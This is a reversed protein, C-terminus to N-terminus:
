LSSNIGEAWELAELYAQGMSEVDFGAEALVEWEGQEYQFLAALLGGLDGERGILAAKVEESLPLDAVVEAMPRDMLADLTSFLGVLFAQQAEVGFLPAMLRAMQARELTVLKLETPKDDIRSLALWTVWTRLGKIGLYVTARRIDDVRNRIPFYASNILRLLRYSLSADQEVLEALDVDPDQLRAVLRLIQTRDTPLRHKSVTQPRAFFYGQFLEFGLERCRAWEAATEVKEAILRGPFVALEQAYRELEADSLAQVDVKIFDARNTLAKQDNEWLFDDLAIRVGAKGLARVAAEVREDVRIDELVEVVLRERAVPHTALHQL